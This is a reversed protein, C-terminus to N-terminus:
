RSGRQLWTILPFLPVGWAIGAVAFFALRALQHDPLRAAVLTAAWIYGAMFAVMAVAGILKRIRPSM